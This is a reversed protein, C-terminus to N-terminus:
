DALLPEQEQQEHGEAPQRQEEGADADVAHYRQDHGLAGPFNAHAQGETGRRDAHERHDNALGDPQSSGADHQPEGGRCRQRRQQGALQKADLDEIPGVNVATGRTSRSTATAAAAAGARRAM